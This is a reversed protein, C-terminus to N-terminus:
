AAGLIKLTPPLVKLFRSPLNSIKHNLSKPLLTVSLLCVPNLLAKQAWLLLYVNALVTFKGYETSYEYHWLIGVSNNSEEPQNKM